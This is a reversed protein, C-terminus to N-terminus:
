STGTLGNQAAKVFDVALGALQLQAYKLRASLSYETGEAAVELAKTGDSLLTLMARVVANSEAYGSDEVGQADEKMKEALDKTEVLAEDQTSTNADLAFALTACAKMAQAYRDFIPQIGPLRAADATITLELRNCAMTYVACDMEQAILRDRVAEADKQGEYGSLLVRVYGDAELLYGAAGQKKLSDALSKANAESDFVGMQLCYLTFAKWVVKQEAQNQTAKPSATPTGGSFVGFIPAIVNDAMWKGAVGASLIYVLGLVTIVVLVAGAMSNRRGHPRRRRKVRRM